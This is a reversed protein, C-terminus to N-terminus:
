CGKTRKVVISVVPVCFSLGFLDSIEAKIVGKTNGPEIRTIKRIKKTTNKIINLLVNEAGTIEHLRLRMRLKKKGVSQVLVCINKHNPFRRRV